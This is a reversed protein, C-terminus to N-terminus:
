NKLQKPLFDELSKKRDFASFLKTELYEILFKCDENFEERKMKPFEVGVDPDYFRTSVYRPGEWIRIHDGFYVDNEDLEYKTENKLLQEIEEALGKLSPITMKFNFEFDKGWFGFLCNGGEFNPSVHIFNGCFDGFEDIDVEEKKIKAKKDMKM